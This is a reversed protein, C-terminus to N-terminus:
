LGFVKKVMKTGYYKCARCNAAVYKSVISRYGGNFVSCTVEVHNKDDLDEFPTISFISLMLRLLKRLFYPFGAEQLLRM